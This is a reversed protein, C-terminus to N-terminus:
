KGRSSGNPTVSNLRYTVKRTIFLSYSYTKVIVYFIPLVNHKIIEINLKPVIGVRIEM